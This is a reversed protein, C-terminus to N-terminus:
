SHFHGTPRPPPAPNLTDSACCPALPRRTVPHPDSISLDPTPPALRAPISPDVPRSSTALVYWCCCFASAMGKGVREGEAGHGRGAADEGDGRGKRGVQKYLTGQIDFQGGEHEPGPQITMAVTARGKLYPVEAFEAPPAPQTYGSAILEELVTVQKLARENAALADSQKSAALGDKVEDMAAVIGSLAAQGESAKSSPVAKLIASQGSKAASRAKSLASSAVQGNLRALNDGCEELAAQVDRIEKPQKPLGLRLLSLPDKNVRSGSGSALERAHASGGGVSLPGVASPVLPSALLLAALSAATLSRQLAAGLGAHERQPLRM